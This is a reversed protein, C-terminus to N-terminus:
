NRQLEDSGEAFLRKLIVGDVLARVDAATRGPLESAIVVAEPMLTVVGGGPAVLAAVAKPKSEDCGTLTVILVVIMLIGVLGLYYLLFFRKM